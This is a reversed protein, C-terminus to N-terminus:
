RIRIDWEIDTSMSNFVSCYSDKSLQVAREAAARPVNGTTTFTMEIHTFRRPEAQSRTGVFSGHLGEIPHRGKKLIHVIDIGMCSMVAYALAQMPSPGAQADSDLVLDPEGQGTRFRLDGDWTLSVRTPPKM